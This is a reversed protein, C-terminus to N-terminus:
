QIEKKKYKIKNEKREKRGKENKNEKGEKLCTAKEWKQKVKNRVKNSIVIKKM